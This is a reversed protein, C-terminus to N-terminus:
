RTPRAASRHDYYRGSSRRMSVFRIGGDDAHPQTHDFEGNSIDTPIGRPFAVCVAKAAMRFICQMCQSSRIENM